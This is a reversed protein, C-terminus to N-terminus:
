TLREGQGQGVIWSGYAFARRHKRCLLSGLSPKEPGSKICALTSHGTRSCRRPTPEFTSMCLGCLGGSCAFHSWLHRPISKTWKTLSCVKQVPWDSCPLWLRVCIDAPVSEGVWRGARRGRSQLATSRLLNTIRQPVEGAPAKRQVQRLGAYIETNDDQPLFPPATHRCDSGTTLNADQQILVAASLPCEGTAQHIRCFIQKTSRLLSAAVQM